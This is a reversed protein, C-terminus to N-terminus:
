PQEKAYEISVKATANPAIPHPSLIELDSWFVPKQPPLSRRTRLRGRLPALDEPRVARLRQSPTLDKRHVPVVRFMEPEILEHKPLGILPITVEITEEVPTASPAAPKTMWLRVGLLVVGVAVWPIARRWPEPKAVPAAVVVTPEAATDDELWPFPKLPDTKRVM